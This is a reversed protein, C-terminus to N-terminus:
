PRQEQSVVGDRLDRLLGKQFVNGINSIVTEQELARDAVVKEHGFWVGGILFEPICQLLGVQVGEEPLLLTKFGCEVFM